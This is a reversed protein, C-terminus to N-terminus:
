QLFSCLVLIAPFELLRQSCRRGPVSRWHFYRHIRIQSLASHCLSTVIKEWSPPWSHGVIHICRASICVQVSGSATGGKLMRYEKPVIQSLHCCWTKVATKSHSAIIVM